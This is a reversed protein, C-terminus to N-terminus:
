EVKRRLEDGSSMKEIVSRAAREYNRNKEVEYPRLYNMLMTLITIFASGAKHSTPINAANCITILYGIVMLLHGDDDGAKRGPGDNTNAENTIERLRKLHNGLSTWFKWFESDALTSSHNTSIGHQFNFAEYLRSTVTVYLGSDVQQLELNSELKNISAIIKDFVQSEEQTTTREFDHVGSKALREALSIIQPVAAKVAAKTTKKFKYAADDQISKLAKELTEVTRPVSLREGSRFKRKGGEKKKM